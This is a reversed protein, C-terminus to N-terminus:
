HINNPYSAIHGVSHIQTKRYHTLNNVGYSQIPSKPQKKLHSSM